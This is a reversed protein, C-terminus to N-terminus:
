LLTQPPLIENPHIEDNRRSEPEVKVGPLSISAFCTPLRIWKEQLVQEVYPGIAPYPFHRQISNQLM